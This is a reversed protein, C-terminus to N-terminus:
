LPEMLAVHLALARLPAGHVTVGAFGTGILAFVGTVSVIVRPTGL